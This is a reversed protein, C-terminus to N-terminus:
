LELSFFVRSLRWATSGRLTSDQMMEIFTKFFSPILAMLSSVNFLLNGVGNNLDM